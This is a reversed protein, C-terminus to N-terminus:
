YYYNIKETFNDPSLCIEFHWDKALLLSLYYYYYYDYVVPIIMIMIMIIYVWYVGHGVRLSLFVCM